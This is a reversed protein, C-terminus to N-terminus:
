HGPQIKSRMQVLVAKELSFDARLARKKGAVTVSLLTKVAYWRVRWVGKHKGATPSILTRGGAIAPMAKAWGGKQSAM